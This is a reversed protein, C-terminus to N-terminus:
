KDFNFDNEQFTFGNNNDQMGFNGNMNNIGPGFNSINNNFNNNVNNGTNENIADMSPYEENPFENGFQVNNNIIEFDNKIQENNIKNKDGFEFVRNERIKNNKKVKYHISM